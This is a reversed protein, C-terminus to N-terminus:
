GKIKIKVGRQDESDGYGSLSYITPDGDDLIETHQSPKGVLRIPVGLM